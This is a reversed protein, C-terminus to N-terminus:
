GLFIFVHEFVQVPVNVAVNNMITLTLVRVIGDLPSPIFLSYFM